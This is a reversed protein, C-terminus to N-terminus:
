RAAFHRNDHLYKHFHSLSSMFYALQSLSPSEKEVAMSGTTSSSGQLGFGQPGYELGGRLLPLRHSQEHWAPM